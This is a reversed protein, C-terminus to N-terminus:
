GMASGLAGRMRAEYAEPGMKKLDRMSVKTGAGEQSGQRGKGRRSENDTEREVQEQIYRDLGAAASGLLALQGWTHRTRLENFSCKWRGM